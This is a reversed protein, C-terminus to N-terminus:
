ETDFAAANEIVWDNRASQASRPTLTWATSVPGVSVSM